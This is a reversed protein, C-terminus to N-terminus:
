RAARWRRVARSRARSAGLRYGLRRCPYGVAHQQRVWAAVSPDHRRVRRRRVAPQVACSHRRARNLPGGPDAAAADATLHRRAHPAPLRLRLPRLGERTPGVGGVGLAPATLTVTVTVTIVIPQQGGGASVARQDDLRHCLWAPRPPRLHGLTTQHDLETDCLRLPHAAALM